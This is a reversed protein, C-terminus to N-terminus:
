IITDKSSKNRIYIVSLLFTTDFTVLSQVEMPATESEVKPLTESDVKPDTESDVKPLTESDVILEKEEDM